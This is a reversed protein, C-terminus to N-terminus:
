MANTTNRRVGSRLLAVSWRVLSLQALLEDHRQELLPFLVLLAALAVFLFSLFLLQRLELELQFRADLVLLAGNLVGARKPDQTSYM